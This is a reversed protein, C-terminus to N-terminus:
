QPQEWELAGIADVLVKASTVRAALIPSHSVSWISAANECMEAAADRGREWEAKFVGEDRLAKLVARAQDMPTCGMDTGDVIGQVIIEIIDQDTM